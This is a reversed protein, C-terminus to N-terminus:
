RWKKQKCDQKLPNKNRKEITTNATREKGIKKPCELQKQEEISPDEQQYLHKNTEQGFGFPAEINDKPTTKNTKHLLKELENIKEAQEKLQLRQQVIISEHIQQKQVELQLKNNTAKLTEINAKLQTNQNNVNIYLQQYEKNKKELNPNANQILKTKFALKKDNQAANLQKIALKKETLEQFYREIVEDKHTMLQRMEKVKEKLAEIEKPYRKNLIIAESEIYKFYHLQGIMQVKHNDIKKQLIAIRDKLIQIYSSQHVCRTNLEELLNDDYHDIIDIIRLKIKGMPKGELYTLETIPKVVLTHKEPQYQKGESFFKKISQIVKSSPM